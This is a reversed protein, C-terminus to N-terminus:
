VFAIDRYRELTTPRTAAEEIASTITFIHDFQYRNLRHLHSRIADASLYRDIAGCADLQERLCTMVPSGPDYATQTGKYGAKIRARLAAPLAYFLRRKLFYRDLKKSTIPFGWKANEIAAAECSLRLLVERNLRYREKITDPCRLAYVFFDIAYFPAVPWAYYRNRDEGEFLWKFNRELIMFHVFKMALASEAFTELYDRFSAVIRQATTRTLAAVVDIPVFTYYEIIHRALRDIDTIRAQPRLDPLVRDGGDGSFITLRDGYISRMREFLPLSFAMGLFNTGSKLELLKIADSGTPPDLRFLKWPYGLAEAIRRAIETDPDFDKFHDVFTANAFDAGERKLAAAVIRSDLGGSLTVVTAGERRMRNRVATQFMDALNSAAAHLDGQAADKVEFNFHYSQAVAAASGSGPIHVISAPPLRFIGEYITRRGLPYGFLLYESIGAPDMAVTGTLSTIFRIERSVFIRSGDERYYLPLRGLADTFICIGGSERDRICINFDGDTDLQWRALRALAEDGGRHVARSLAIAEDIVAGAEKGYVRGDICIISGEREAVTVPYWTHRTAALFCHADRIHTERTYWPYHRLSSVAEDLRQSESVLSGEADYAFHIGPV